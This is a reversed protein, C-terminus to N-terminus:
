DPNHEYFYDYAEEYDEFDDYYYDYFDEPDNFDRANYPDDDYYAKKTTTVPRNGSPRYSGGSPRYSSGSSSDGSSSTPKPVTEYEPAHLVYEVVGDRTYIQYYAYLWNLPDSKEAYYPIEWYYKSDKLPDTDVCTAKGLKTSNILAEPMGAYPLIESIPKIGTNTKLGIYHSERGDSVSILGQRSIYFEYSLEYSQGSGSVYEGIYYPKVSLEIFPYPSQVKELEDLFYYFKTWDKIKEPPDIQLSIDIEYKIPDETSEEFRYQSHPEHVKKNLKIHAAINHKKCVDTAANLLRTEEDNFAALMSESADVASQRRSENERQTKVVSKIALATAASLLGVCIICIIIATALGKKKPQESM